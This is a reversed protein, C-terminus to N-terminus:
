RAAVVKTADFPKTPHDRLVDNLVRVRVCVYRSLIRVGRLVQYHWSCLVNFYNARFMFYIFNKGFACIYRRSKCM